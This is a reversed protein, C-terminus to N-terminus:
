SDVRSSERRGYLIVVAVMNSSKAATPGTMAVVRARADSSGIGHCKLKIPLTM